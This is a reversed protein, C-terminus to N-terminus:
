GLVKKRYRKIMVPYACIGIIKCILSVKYKEATYKKLNFVKNICLYRCYALARKIVGNYKNSASSLNSVATGRPSKKLVNESNKTYGDDKYDSVCIPKKNTYVFYNKDLKDYLYNEPVLKENEFEPFRIGKVCELNMLITTEGLYGFKAYISSLKTLNFDKSLWEKELKGNSHIRPNVVGWVDSFDKEKVYNNLTEIADSLLYDDSDICVCFKQDCVDFAYNLATHKGGNEKKHYKISIKNELQWKKVIECTNDTSGDDVLLWYFDRDTQGCLSEYLKDLQEGRNYTPTIVILM